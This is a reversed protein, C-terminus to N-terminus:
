PLLLWSFRHRSDTAVEELESATTNQISRPHALVMWLVRTHSSNAALGATPAPLELLQQRHQKRAKPPFFKARFSPLHGGIWSMCRPTGLGKPSCCGPFAICALCRPTGLGKLSCCGPFAICALWRWHGHGGGEALARPLPINTAMNLGCKLSPTLACERARGHGGGEALAM